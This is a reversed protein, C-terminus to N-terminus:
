PKHKFLEKIKKFLGLKALVVTAISIGVSIIIGKPTSVKDEYEAKEKRYLDRTLTRYKKRADADSYVAGSSDRNPPNVVGVKFAPVKTNPKAHSINTM